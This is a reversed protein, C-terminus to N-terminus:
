PVMIPLYINIYITFLIIDKNQFNLKLGKVLVWNYAISPESTAARGGDESGNWCSQRSVRVPGLMPYSSALYFGWLGFGQVLIKFIMDQVHLPRNLLWSPYPYGPVIFRSQLEHDQVM